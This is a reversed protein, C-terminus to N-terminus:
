QGLCQDDIYFIEDYELQTQEAETKEAALVDKAIQPIKETKKKEKWSLDKLVSETKIIHGCVECWYVSVSDSNVYDYSSSIWILSHKKGFRCEGM